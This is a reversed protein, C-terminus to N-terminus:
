SRGDYDAIYIESDRGAEGKFAIKTQAIGKRGLAPTQVFDDVFAHAQRRLSAGTYSKSILTTKSVNDVARGQLNGNNSGSLVYQAGEANTLSFGQVYLDFQIVEAAEGSFGSISVPIPRAQGIVTLKQIDLESQACTTNLSAIVAAVCVAGQLIRRRMQFGTLPPMNIAGSAEVPCNQKEAARRVTCGFPWAALSMLEERGFRVHWGRRQFVFCKRPMRGAIFLDGRVPNSASAGESFEGEIAQLMERERDSPSLAPTLPRLGFKLRKMVQRNM